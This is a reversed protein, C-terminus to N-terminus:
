GPSTMQIPVSPAESFRLFPSTTSISIVPTPVRELGTTLSYSPAKRWDRGGRLPFTLIPTGGRGSGVIPSGGIGVMLETRPGMSVASM